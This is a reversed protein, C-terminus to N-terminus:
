DLLGVVLGRGDHLRDGVGPDVEVVDELDELDLAHLLEDVGPVLQGLGHPALELLLLLLLLVGGDPGARPGSPPVQRDVELFPGMIVLGSRSGRSRRSGRTGSGQASTTNPIVPSRARLFSSGAM